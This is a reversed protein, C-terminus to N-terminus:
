KTDEEKAPAFARRETAVVDGVGYGKKAAAAFAEEWSTGMGRAKYTRRGDRRCKRHREGFFPDAWPNVGVRFRRFPQLSREVEWARGRYGWLLQAYDLAETATV